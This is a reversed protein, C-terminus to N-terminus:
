ILDEGVLNDIRKLLERWQSKKFNITYQVGVTKRLLEKLKKIFEKVDEAEIVTFSDISCADVIKSSLNDEKM